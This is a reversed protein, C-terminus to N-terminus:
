WVAFLESTRRINSVLAKQLITLVGKITRAASGGGGVVSRPGSVANHAAASKM